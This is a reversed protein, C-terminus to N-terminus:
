KKELEGPLDAPKDAPKDSPKAAAPRDVREIKAGERLKAVYETQAKRALFVTIQDKIKDFEPVQKNRRDELKIVHWGFQTKVPNSLQGKHMRFAVEAFEPVMQDKGFYGLDGGDAAGPDKSKEKALAAFDAGGKLAEVIARAEDETEVLIHRARVEEEAGMPKVQEDYIKRMAEDTAAIKAEQQLQAGMLLKNRMFNMRQRFEPTEGVKKADAAQAVLLVDAVYAILQERKMEPPAAQLEQGLDEEALALDSQKIEVGNVRAVVPDSASSTPSATSTPSASTQKSPTAEQSCGFALPLILLLIAIKGFAIRRPFRAALGRERVAPLSPSIM